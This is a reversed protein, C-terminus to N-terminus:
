MGLLRQLGRPCAFVYKRFLRHRMVHLGRPHHHLSTAGGTYPKTNAIMKPPVGAVAGDNLSDALSDETWQPVHTRLPCVTGIIIM